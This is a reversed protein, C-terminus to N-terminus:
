DKLVETGSFIKIIGESKLSPKIPYLMNLEIKKKVLNRSIM